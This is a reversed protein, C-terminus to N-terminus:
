TYQLVAVLVCGANLIYWSMLPVSNRCPNNDPLHNILGKIFRIYGPIIVIYSFHICNITFYKMM